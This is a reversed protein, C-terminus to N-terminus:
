RTGHSSIHWASLERHEKTRWEEDDPEAASEESASEFYPQEQIARHATEQARPGEVAIKDEKRPCDNSLHKNSGCAWCQNNELRALVEWTTVTWHSPTKDNTRVIDPAQPVRPVVEYREHSLLRAEEYLDMDSVDDDSLTRDKPRPTGPRLMGIKIAGQKGTDDIKPCDRRFHGVEGCRLCAKSDYRRQREEKSLGDQRKGPPRRDKSQVKDTM